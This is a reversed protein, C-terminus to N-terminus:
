KKPTEKEWSLEAEVGDPSDAWGMCKELLDFGNTYEVNVRYAKTWGEPNEKADRIANAEKKGRARINYLAHEDLNRCVFYSMKM